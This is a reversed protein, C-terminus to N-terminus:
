AITIEDSIQRPFRQHDSQYPISSNSNRIPSVYEHFIVLSTGYIYIYVCLYLISYVRQYNSVAVSFPGTLNTSTKGTFM